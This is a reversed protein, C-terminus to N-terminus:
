SLGMMQKLAAIAERAAVREKEAFATTASPRAQMFKTGYELFRPYPPAKIDTAITLEASTGHQRKDFIDISRRYTGTRYPALEKWRNKILLAGAELALLLKVGSSGDAMQKLRATVNEDITITIGGVDPM